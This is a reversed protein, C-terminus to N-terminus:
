PKDIHNNSVLLIPVDMEEMGAGGFKGELGSKLRSPMTKTNNAISPISTKPTLSVTSTVNVM